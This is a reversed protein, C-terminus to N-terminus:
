EIVLKRIFTEDYQAITMVYIGPSFDRVSVTMSHQGDFADIKESYILQGNLDSIFVKSPAKRGTFEIQLDAKAPNPFMNFENIFDCKNVNTEKVLSKDPEHCAHKVNTAYIWKYDELLQQDSDILVQASSVTIGFFIFLTTLIYDHRMHKENNNDSFVYKKQDVGSSLSVNPLIISQFDLM